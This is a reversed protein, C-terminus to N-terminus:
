ISLRRPTASFLIRAMCGSSTSVSTMDMMFFSSPATTLRPASTPKIIPSSLRSNQPHSYSILLFLVIPVLLLLGAASTAAADYRLRGQVAPAEGVVRHALVDIADPGIVLGLRWLAPNDILDKNM